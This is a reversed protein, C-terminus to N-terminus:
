GAEGAEEGARRAGRYPDQERPVRMRELAEGVIRAIELLARVAEAGADAAPQPAPQPARRGREALFRIMARRTSPYLRKWEGRRYRAIQGHSIGTAEEAEHLSLDEIAALFNAVLQQDSPVQM